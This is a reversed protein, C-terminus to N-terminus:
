RDAAPQDPLPLGAPASGSIFNTLRPLLRLVAAVAGARNSDHRNGGARHLTSYERATTAPFFYGRTCAPVCSGRRQGALRSARCSPSAPCTPREDISRFRMKRPQTSAMRKTAMMRTMRNLSTLVLGCYWCTAVDFAIAAIWAPCTFDTVSVSTSWVIWSVVLLPWFQCADQTPPWPVWIALM